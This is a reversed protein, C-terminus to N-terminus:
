FHTYLKWFGLVGLLLVLLGVSGLWPPVRSFLMERALVLAGVLCVGALVLAVRRAARSLRRETMGLM